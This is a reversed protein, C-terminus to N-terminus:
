EYWKLDNIINEYVNIYENNLIFFRRNKKIKCNIIFKQGRWEVMGVLVAERWDWWWLSQGSDWESRIGAGVEIMNNLTWYIFSFSPICNIEVISVIFVFQKGTLVGATFSLYKWCIGFKFIWLCCLNVINQRLLFLYFWNLIFLISSILDVYM